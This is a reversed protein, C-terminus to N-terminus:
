GVCYVEGIQGPRAVRINIVCWFLIESVVYEIVIISGLLLVGGRLAHMM